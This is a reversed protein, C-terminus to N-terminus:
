GQRSGRSGGMGDLTVIPGLVGLDAIPAFRLVRGTAATSARGLSPRTLAVSAPLAGAAAILRRRRM